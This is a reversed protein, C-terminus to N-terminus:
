TITTLHYDGNRRCLNRLRDSHRIQRKKEQISLRLFILTQFGYSQAFCTLTTGSCLKFIAGGSMGARKGAQLGPIADEFVLGKAREKKQEDTCQEGAMGVDRGLSERAATLFVDPAPKGNMNYKADDACVIKDDFCEFVEGLHATKTM